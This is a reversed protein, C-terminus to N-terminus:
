MYAKISTVSTTVSWISITSQFSSRFCSWNPLHALSFVSSQIPMNGEHFDAKPTFSLSGLVQESFINIWWVTLPEFILFSWLSRKLVFVLTNIGLMYVLNDCVWKDIGEFVLFLWDSISDGFPTHIFIFMLPSWFSVLSCSDKSVFIAWVSNSGDKM